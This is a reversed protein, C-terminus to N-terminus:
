RRVLGWGTLLWLFVAIAKVPHIALAPSVLTSLPPHWTSTFDRFASAEWEFLAAIAIVWYFAGTLGIRDPAPDRRVPFGYALVALVAGPALVALLSTRTFPATQGAAWAYGLLAAVVATKAALRGGPAPLRLRGAPRDPVDGTAM